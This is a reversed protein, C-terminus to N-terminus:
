FVSTPYMTYLGVRLIISHDYRTPVELVKPSFSPPIKLPYQMVDASDWMVWTCPCPTHTISNEGGGSFLAEKRATFVVPLRFLLISDPLSLGLAIESAFNFSTVIVTSGPLPLLSPSSPTFGKLGLLFNSLLGVVPPFLSTYSPRPPNQPSNSCASLFSRYPSFTNPSSPM